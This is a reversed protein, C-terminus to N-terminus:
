GTAEGEEGYIERIVDDADRAKSKKPPERGAALRQKEREQYYRDIVVGASRRTWTEYITAALMDEAPISTSEALKAVEDMQKDTPV